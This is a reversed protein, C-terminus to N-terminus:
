SKLSALLRNLQLERIQSNICDATHETNVIDNDQLSGIGSKTEVSWKGGGKSSPQPSAIRWFEVKRKREPQTYVLIHYNDIHEGELESGRGMCAYFGNYRGITFDDADTGGYNTSPIQHIDINELLHQNKEILDMIARAQGNMPAFCLGSCTPCTQYNDPSRKKTTTNYVDESVMVFYSKQRHSVVPVTQSMLM